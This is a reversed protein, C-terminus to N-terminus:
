SSSFRLNQQSKFVFLAGGGASKGYYGSCHAAQARKNKGGDMGREQAASTTKVSQADIAYSPAVKRGAAVCPIIGRLLRQLVDEPLNM